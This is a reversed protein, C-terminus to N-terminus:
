VKSFKPKFPLAVRGESGGGGLCIKVLEAGVMTLPRHHSGLVEGFFSGMETRQCKLIGGVRPIVKVKM